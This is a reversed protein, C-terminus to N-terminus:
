IGMRLVFLTHFLVLHRDKRNPRSIQELHGLCIVLFVPEFCGRTGTVRVEPLRGAPNQRRRFLLKVRFHDHWIKKPLKKKQKESTTYFMANKKKKSSNDLRESTANEVEWFKPNKDTLLQTMCREEGGRESGRQCNDCLLLVFPCCKACSQSLRKSGPWLLHISLPCLPCSWIRSLSSTLALSHHRFVTFSLHKLWHLTATHSFRKNWPSVWIVATVSCLNNCDTTQSHLRRHNQLRAFKTHVSDDM